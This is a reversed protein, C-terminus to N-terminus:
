RDPPHDNGTRYRASRASGLRSPDSEWWPAFRDPGREAAEASDIVPPGEADLAADVRATERQDARIWRRVLIGLFPLDAFEAVFWLVAGGRQQAALLSPGWPRHLATFYAPALLHTRLRVAIGPVADLLLELFGVFLGAAIAGSNSESLGDGTLGLALLFGIALLGVQVAALVVASRLGASLLGTFFVAGLVVPVLLPAVLPSEVLRLPPSGAVRLLGRSAGPPLTRHALVLPRGAALFVPAVVLLVLVQVVFAWFLVPAYVGVWGTTAVLVTGVGGVLYSATRSPSWRDRRRSLRALALLYPVGLTLALGVGVPDFRWATLVGGLSPGPPGSYSAALALAM